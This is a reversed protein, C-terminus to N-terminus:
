DANKDIEIYGLSKFKGNIEYGDLRTYYDKIFWPSCSNCESKSTKFGM